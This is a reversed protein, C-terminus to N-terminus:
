NAIRHSFATYENIWVGSKNIVSQINTKFESARKMDQCFVHVCMSASSSNTDSLAHAIRRTHTVPTNYVAPGTSSLM